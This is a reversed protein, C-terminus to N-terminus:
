SRRLVPIKDLVEQPIVPGLENLQRIIRKEGIMIGIMICVPIILVTAALYFWSPYDFM